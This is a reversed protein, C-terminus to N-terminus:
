THTWRVKNSVALTLSILCQNRALFFSFVNDPREPGDNKKIDMEDAEWQKMRNPLLHHLSSLFSEKIKIHMQTMTMTDHATPGFLYSQLTPVPFLAPLHLHLHVHVHVHSQCPLHNTGGSLLPLSHPGAIIAAMNDGLPDWIM